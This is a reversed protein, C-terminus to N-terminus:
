LDFHPDSTTPGYSKLSLGSALNEKGKKYKVKPSKPSLSPRPSTLGKSVVLTEFKANKEIEFEDYYVNLIAFVRLRLAWLPM